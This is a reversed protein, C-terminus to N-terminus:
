IGLVFSLTIRFFIKAIMACVRVSMSNSCPYRIRAAVHESTADRPSAGVRGPAGLARALLIERTHDPATASNAHRVYLVTCVHALKGREDGNRALKQFLCWVSAKEILLLRSGRRYQVDCPASSLHLLLQLPSM